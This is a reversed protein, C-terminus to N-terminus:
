SKVGQAQAGQIFGRVAASFAEPQDLDVVHGAEEIVTLSSGPIMGKLVEAYPLPFIRDERPWVIHTPRDIRHLWKPLAPDHLRPQWGLLAATEMNRLVARLQEPTPQMALFGDRNAQKFFLGEAMEERGWLFMDGSPVGKVRVGAPCVLTLTSLRSTNRVALEMAIWGGMSHGALHVDTLGRAELYDLYFYALDHIDGVWKPREQLGFGPHEPVILRFDKALMQLAPPPPAGEILGNLGGAGHLYLLTPGVGIGVGIEFSHTRHGDIEDVRVEGEAMASTEEGTGGGSMVRWPEDDDGHGLDAGVDGV